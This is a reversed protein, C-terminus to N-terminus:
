GTNTCMREGSVSLQGGQILPLSHGYFINWSWDGCFFTAPSQLSGVQSKRFHMWSLWQLLGWKKIFTKNNTNITFHTLVMHIGNNNQGSCVWLCHLDRVSMSQSWDRTVIKKKRIIQKCAQYVIVPVEASTGILHNHCIDPTVQSPWFSSMFLYTNTKKSLICLLWLSWQFDFIATRGKYAYLKTM